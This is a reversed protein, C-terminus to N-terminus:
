ALQGLLDGPDVGHEDPVGVDLDDLLEDGALDRRPLFTSSVSGSLHPM